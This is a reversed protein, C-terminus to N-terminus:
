KDLHFIDEVKKNLKEAIELATELSPVTGNEYRNYQRYDIELIKSFETQNDILYEKLRIEKLKNKVAM